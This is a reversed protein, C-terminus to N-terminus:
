GPTYQNYHWGNLLVEMLETVKTYVRLEKAYHSLNVLNKRGDAAYATVAKAFTERDMQSRRKFCDCITRERDYVRLIVGSWDDIIAGLEFINQQVM